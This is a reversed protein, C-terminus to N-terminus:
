RARDEPGEGVIDFFKADSSDSFIMGHAATALAEIEVTTEPIFTNSQNNKRKRTTKARYMKYFDNFEGLQQGHDLEFASVKDVIEASWGVDTMLEKPAEPTPFAPSIAPDPNM